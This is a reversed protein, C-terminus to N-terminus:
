WRLGRTVMLGIRFQSRLRQNYDILSEGYGNFYQLHLYGGLNGFTPKRLPYSADIQISGYDSNNGRRITADFLWGDEQGIRVLFDTHGRYDDVDPNEEKDAYYYIKPALTLVYERGLPFTLAPRAFLINISRSQTGDRGNSEHEFGAQLGLRSGAFTWRSVNEDLFFISPRYSSDRFPKSSSDLDWISSQSYALYLRELFSTKTDANFLRFKLSIQFRATTNGRSGASFYIPEYPSLASTLRALESPTSSTPLARIVIPNAPVNAARFVLDGVLDLPLSASYRVREFGGAIIQVGPQAMPDLGLSVIREGDATTTALDIRPPATFPVSESSNNTALLDVSFREGATVQSQAPVLSLDQAFASAACVAALLLSTLAGRMFENCRWSAIPTAWLADAGSDAICVIM